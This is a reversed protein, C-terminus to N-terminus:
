WLSTPNPEDEDVDVMNPNRGDNFDYTFKMDGYGISEDTAGQDLTNTVRITIDGM